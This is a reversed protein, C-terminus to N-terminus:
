MWRPVPIPRLDDCRFYSGDDTAHIDPDISTRSPYGYIPDYSVGVEANPDREYRAILAFNEEVTRYAGWLHRPRQEGTVANVVQYVVGCAGAVGEHLDAEVVWLDAGLLQCRAQRIQHFPLSGKPLGDWAACPSPAERAQPVRGCEPSPAESPPRLALM